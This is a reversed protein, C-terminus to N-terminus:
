LPSTPWPGFPRLFPPAFFDAVVLFAVEAALFCIREDDVLFVVVRLGAALDAPLFSDSLRYRTLVWLSGSACTWWRIASLTERSVPTSTSAETTALTSSFWGGGTITGASPRVIKFGSIWLAMMLSARSYPTSYHSNVLAAVKSSDEVPLARNM